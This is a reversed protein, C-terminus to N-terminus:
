PRSTTHATSISTKIFEYLNPQSAIISSGDKWDDVDRFGSVMGGAEKVLLVGAAVDWINLNKEYYGDFRGSAVYALDLAASGLRRVARVKGLLHKLVDVYAATRNKDDYPFGTAIIAESTLRRGSVEIPSDNVFAGGGAYTHFSEDQMVARVLGLVIDGKYKLAVSVSFFPLNTLFNTTGDLPDIIWVLDSEENDVTDEETIFSASPLIKGLGKVLQDEATKDVYSVLSNSAKTEIDALTVKIQETKIFHSVEDVLPRVEAMIEALQHKDM